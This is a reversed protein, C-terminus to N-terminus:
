IIERESLSRWPTVPEFREAPHTLQEFHVEAHMCTSTHTHTHTLAFVHTFKHTLTGGQTDIRVSTAQGFGHKNEAM